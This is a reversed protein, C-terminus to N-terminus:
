RMVGGHESTVPCDCHRPENDRLM